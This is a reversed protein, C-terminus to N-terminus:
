SPLHPQKGNPSIHNAPVGGANYFGGWAYLNGSGDVALAFVGGNMGSGLPWCASGDWKAINNAPAGGATYFSGGAYLHGSGDVALAYIMGNMGSGLPSWASGDWKAIHNAPVGGATYFWGGAYLNGNGDVAVAFVFGGTVALGFADSWREDGPAAGLEFRPEEGPASALRYGEPNLAGRYASRLDLSGDPRLLEGLDRGQQSTRSQM